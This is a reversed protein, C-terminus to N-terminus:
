NSLLIYFLSSSCQVLIWRLHEISVKINRAYVSRNSTIKQSSYIRIRTKCLINSTIDPHTANVKVAKTCKGTKKKEDTGELFNNKGRITSELFNM